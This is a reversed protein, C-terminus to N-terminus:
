GTMNLLNSFHNLFTGSDNLKKDSQFGALGDPASSLDTQQKNKQCGHLEATLLVTGCGSAGGSVFLIAKIGVTHEPDAQVDLRM